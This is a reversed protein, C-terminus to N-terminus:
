VTNPQFCAGNQLIPRCDAGNECAYDLAKRLASESVDTRCACWNIGDSHGTMFLMLVALVLVTDM